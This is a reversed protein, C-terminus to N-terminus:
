WDSLSESCMLSLLVLAVFVLGAVFVWKLFKGVGGLKDESEWHVFFLVVNLLVIFVICLIWETM